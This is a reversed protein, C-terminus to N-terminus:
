PFCKPSSATCPSKGFFRSNKSSPDHPPLGWDQAVQFVVLGLSRYNGGDVTGIIPSQELEHKYGPCARFGLGTNQTQTPTGHALLGLGQLGLSEPNALPIQHPRRRSAITVEATRPAQTPHRDQTGHAAVPIYSHKLHTPSHGPDRIVKFGSGSVEVRPGTMQNQSARCNRMGQVAYDRARM